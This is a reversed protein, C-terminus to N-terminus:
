PSPNSCAHIELLWRNTCSTFCKSQVYIDAPACARSQDILAKSNNLSSEFKLIANKRSPKTNYIKINKSINRVFSITWLKFIDRSEKPLGSLGFHLYIECKKITYNLLMTQITAWIHMIEILSNFVNLLLINWRQCINFSSLFRISHKSISWLEILMNAEFWIDSNTSPCEWIWAWQGYINIESWFGLSILKLKWNRQPGRFKTTKQTLIWDLSHFCEKRPM